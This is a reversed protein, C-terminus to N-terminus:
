STIEGKENTKPATKKNSSRASTAKCPIIDQPFNIFQSPESFHVKIPQNNHLWSLGHNFHSRWSM